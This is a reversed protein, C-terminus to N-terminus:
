LIYSVGIKVFLSQPKKQINTVLSNHHTHLARQYRLSSRIVIHPKVFAEAGIESILDTTYFDKNQTNSKLKYSSYAAGLAMYPLFNHQILQGFRFLGEVHNNGEVRQGEKKQSFTDHFVGAEGGFYLDSSSVYGYGLLGGAIFQTQRYSQDTVGMRTRGFGLAPGFYFGKFNGVFAPTEALATTALCVVGILFFKNM